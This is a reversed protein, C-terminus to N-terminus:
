AALAKVYILADQYNVTKKSELIKKLEKYAVESYALGSHKLRRELRSMTERVSELPARLRLQMDLREIYRGTKILAREESVPVCDDISGWFALMYDIVAQDVLAFTSEKGGKALLDLGMQIYAMVTSTIMSRLVIANDYARSLNSYVSDTNGPDFLYREMFDWRDKYIDPINLERCYPRYAFEDKDLLTDFLIDVYKLTQHVREVYRGLWFLGDSQELSIIDM